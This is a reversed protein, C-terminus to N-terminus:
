LAAGASLRKGYNQIIRYDVLLTGPVRYTQLHYRRQRLLYATAPRKM